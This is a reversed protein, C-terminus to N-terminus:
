KLPYLERYSAGTIVIYSQECGWTVRAALSRFIMAAVKVENICLFIPVHILNKTSQNMHHSPKLAICIKKTKNIDIERLFYLLVHIHHFFIQSNQSQHNKMDWFKKTNDSFISKKYEKYEQVASDQYRQYIVIFGFNM